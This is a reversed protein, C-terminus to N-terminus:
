PTDSFNSGQFYTAAKKVEHKSGIYIPARQHLKELKLDLIPTTGDTAMGGAQECLFALPYLEFLLRLKGQPAKQLAPYSFLGGGKMLIQNFDPVLGGSYRLKYDTIVLDDIFNRHASVWESRLGGPSYISGQEKMRIHSKTLVFEGEPCLVFEHVGKGSTYVLTTLPGYLIYLAALMHRGTDVLKEAPHIGVITGVALNVDILSSGDLPDVSVSFKPNKHPTKISTEQEESAYDHVYDLATIMDKLIIDAQKDVELQDEASTNQTGAMKRNAAKLLSSIYKGAVSVTHILRRLDPDIGEDYLFKRLFVSTHDM